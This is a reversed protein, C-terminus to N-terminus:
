SREGPAAGELRARLTKIKTEEAELARQLVAIQEGLRRLVRASMEIEDAIEGRTV